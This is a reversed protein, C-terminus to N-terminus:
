NILIKEKAIISNNKELLIFYLGPTLSNKTLILTNIGAPFKKDSIIFLKKGTFDALWIQTNETCPLYFNIEATNIVPNPYVNMSYSAPSTVPKEWLPTPISFESTNGELDTATCVLMEESSLGTITDKWNGSADALCYGLYVKGQANGTINYQAKFLEIRCGTPSTTNLAGQIVWDATSPINNFSIIEPYNMLNNPGTDADGNDNTTPGQPYLDIGIGDNDYISNSLISNYLEASTMVTVGNGGNHAIINGKGPLGIFNSHPGEGIRVGDLQNGLPLTGTIDTGIKNNIVYNSDSGAIHIDIGMQLNGSIVNNDITHFFTPGDVVIGNANPVAITGTYDTGILNGVVTDNRTGFNYLFVGYGSNGSLLNSSGAVRGGLTNYSAGDDFLVGYTNSIAFTGTTDTGVYNGVIVNYNCGAGFVPIGYADNGSVYNREAQTYGGILNYQSTGEISIGDYNRLAANGTRNLGVFNGQITNYNSNVVRIGVHNNGSVINRSAINNGGVTNNHPGSLIYVGHTNGLTDTANYNCGIYNGCITNNQANAGSIQIGVVFRGIIFGKITVNSVNYIHFAYDAWTANNGDLMIEPGYPNSNGAYTTQSTGDIFVDSHTILPLDSTTVIKWVGQMSNYNADIAPINFIISHSGPYANANLIAQRLSGAGADNTNTVTFTNSHITNSFSIFFLFTILISYLSRSHETQSNSVLFKDNQANDFFLCIEPKLVVKPYKDLGRKNHYNTSNM